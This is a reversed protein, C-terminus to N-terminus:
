KPATFGDIIVKKGFSHGLTRLEEKLTETEENSAGIAVLIFPKDESLLGGFASSGFAIDLSVKAEALSVDRGQVSRSIIFGPPLARSAGFNFKGTGDYYALRSIHFDKPRIMEDFSIHSYPVGLEEAIEKAWDKAFEDSKTEDLGERKAFIKAAGCGDHSTVGDVHATRFYLLAQEKTLLIGSGASHLGGPTGEDICRVNRDILYFAKSVDEERVYESFGKKLIQSIIAEQGEFIKSKEEQHM